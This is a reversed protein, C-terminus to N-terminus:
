EKITNYMMNKQLLFCDSHKRVGGGGWLWAPKSVLEIHWIQWDYRPKNHLFLGNKRVTKIQATM